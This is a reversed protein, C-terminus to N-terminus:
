KISAATSSAVVGEANPIGVEEKLKVDAHIVFDGGGSSAAQWAGYLSRVFDEHDHLLLVRGREHTFLQITLDPKWATYGKSVLYLGAAMRQVKQYAADAYVRSYTTGISIARYITEGDPSYGDGSLTVLLRLREADMTKFKIISAKATQKYLSRLPRESTRATEARREIEIGCPEDTPDM